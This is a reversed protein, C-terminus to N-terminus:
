VSGGCLLHTAVAVPGALAAPATSAWMWLTTAMGLGGEFRRLWATM